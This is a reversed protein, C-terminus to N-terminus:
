DGSPLTQRLWSVLSHALSNGQAEQLQGDAWICRYPDCTTNARAVLISAIQALSALTVRELRQDLRLPVGTMESDIPTFVPLRNVTARFEQSRQTAIEGPTTVM